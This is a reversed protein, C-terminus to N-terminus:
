KRLGGRASGPVNARMVRATDRMDILRGSRHETGWLDKIVNGEFENRVSGM